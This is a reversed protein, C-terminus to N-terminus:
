NGKLLKLKDIVKQLGEQMAVFGEDSVEWDGDIGEQCCTHITQIEEILGEILSTHQPDTSHLILAIQATYLKPHKLEKNYIRQAEAENDATECTDIFTDNKGPNSYKRTASVLYM